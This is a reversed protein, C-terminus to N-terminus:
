SRELELVWKRFALKRRRSINIQKSSHFTFYSLFTFLWARKPNVRPKNLKGWRDTCNPNPYTPLNPLLLLTKRFCLLYLQVCLNVVPKYCLSYVDQRQIFVPSNIKRYDVRHQKCLVCCPYFAIQEIAAPRSLM